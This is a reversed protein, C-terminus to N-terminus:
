NLSPATPRVRRALPEPMPMEMTMPAVHDMMTRGLIHDLAQVSRTLAQVQGEMTTAASATEEAVAATSQAVGEQRSVTDRVQVIGSAQQQNNKAIEVMLSAVEAVSKTIESFANTVNGSKESATEASRGSEEILTSTEAAAAACLQALRRVEEAVVSFGAGAEGARAAEVAANLALINTQFSIDNIRSVIHTIKQSSVRISEMAAALAGIAAQGTRVSTNAEAARHDAQKGHADNRRATESIEHLSASVEELAAAYSSANDSIQGSAAGLQESASQVDDSSARIADSVAKMARGLHSTVALNVVLSLIFALGIALGVMVTMRYKADASARLAKLTMDFGHQLTDAYHQARAEMMSPLQVTSLPFRPLPNGEKLRAALEPLYKYYATSAEDAHLAADFEIRLAPFYRRLITESEMLTFYQKRLVALDDDKFRYGTSGISFLSAIMADQERMKNLTFLGDFYSLTEPTKASQRFGELPAMPGFLLKTYDAMIVAVPKRDSVDRRTGQFWTTLVDRYTRIVEAFAATDILRANRDLWSFEEAMARDTAAQQQALASSRSPDDPLAVFAFALNREAQLEHALSLSKTYGAEYGEIVAVDSKADQAEHFLRVLFTGGVGVLGLIPVITLLLLKQHFSMRLRFHPSM